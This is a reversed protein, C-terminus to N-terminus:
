TRHVGVVEGAVVDPETGAGVIARVQDRDGFGDFVRVLAVIGSNASVARGAVNCTFEHAVKRGMDEGFIEAQCVGSFSLFVDLEAEIVCIAEIHFLKCTTPEYDGEAWLSTAM